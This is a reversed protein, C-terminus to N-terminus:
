QTYILISSHSMLHTAQQREDIGISNRNQGVANSCPGKEGLNGGLFMQVALKTRHQGCFVQFYLCCRAPCM